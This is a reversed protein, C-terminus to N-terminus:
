NMSEWTGGIITFNLPDGDESVSMAEVRFDSGIVVLWDNWIDDIILSGEDAGSLYARDNDTFERGLGARLATFVNRPTFPPQTTTM